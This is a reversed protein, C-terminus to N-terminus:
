AGRTAAGADLMNSVHQRNGLATSTRREPLVTRRLALDRPAALIVLPQGGVDDFQGLLAQAYAGLVQFGIAMVLGLNM